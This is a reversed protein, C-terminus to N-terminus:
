DAGQVYPEQRLSNLLEMFPRGRFKRSVVFRELRPSDHVRQQLTQLAQPSQMIRAIRSAGPGLMMGRDIDVFQLREEPHKHGMLLRYM